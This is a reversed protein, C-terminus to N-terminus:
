PLNLQDWILVCPSFTVNLYNTPMGCHPLHDTPPHWRVLPIAQAAVATQTHSKEGRQLKAAM